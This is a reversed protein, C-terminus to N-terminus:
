VAIASIPPIRPTKSITSHNRELNTEYGASEVGFFGALFRFFEPADRPKTYATVAYEPAKTSESFRM